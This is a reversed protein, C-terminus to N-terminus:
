HRQFRKDRAVPLPHQHLRLLQPQHLKFTLSKVALDL